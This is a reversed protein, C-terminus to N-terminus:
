PPGRAKSVLQAKMDAPVLGLGAQLLQNNWGYISAAANKEFADVAARAVDEPKDIGVMDLAGRREGHGQGDLNTDTIGPVLCAIRVGAERNEERIAQSFSLLFAKSAAYTATFPVPQFGATSGINLIGGRRREVMGPLFRLSLDVVARIMLDVTALSTDTAADKAFIEKRAFGANNVLIDITMNWENIHQQVINPGDHGALDARIARIDANPAKQQLDQVTTSLSEQSRAVIVLRALGRSLLEFAISRGNGSTAGTVLATSAPHDIDHLGVM